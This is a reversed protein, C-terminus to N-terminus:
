AFWKSGPAIQKDSWATVTGSRVYPKIHALLEEMLKKDRHSYSIFVRPGPM